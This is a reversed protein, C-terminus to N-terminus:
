NLTLIYSRMLVEQLSKGNIEINDWMDTPNEFTYIVEGEVHTDGKCQSNIHPSDPNDRPLIKVEVPRNETHIGYFTDNDVYYFAMNLGVEIVEFFFIEKSVLSRAELKETKTWGLQDEYLHKGNGFFNAVAIKRCTTNIGHEM